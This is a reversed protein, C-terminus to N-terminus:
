HIIPDGETALRKIWEHGCYECSYSHVAIGAMSGLSRSNFISDRIIWAARYTLTNKHVPLKKM